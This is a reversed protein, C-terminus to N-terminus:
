IVKGSILWCLSCIVPEVAKWWYGFLMTHFVYAYDLDFLGVSDAKRELRVDGMMCVEAYAGCVSLADMLVGKLCCISLKLLGM